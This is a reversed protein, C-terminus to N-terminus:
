EEHQTKGLLWAVDIMQPDHGQERAIRKKPHCNAQEGAKVTAQVLFHV